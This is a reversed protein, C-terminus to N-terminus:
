IRDRAGCLSISRAIFWASGEMYQSIERLSGSRFARAPGNSGNLVTHAEKTAMSCYNANGFLSDLDANAPPVGEFHIQM